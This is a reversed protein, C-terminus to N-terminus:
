VTVAIHLACSHTCHSQATPLLWWYYSKCCVSGDWGGCAGQLVLALLMNFLWQPAWRCLWVWWAGPLASVLWSCALSGSCHGGACSPGSRVLLAMLAVHALAVAAGGACGNRRGPHPFWLCVSGCLWVWVCVAVYSVSNGGGQIACAVRGELAVWWM